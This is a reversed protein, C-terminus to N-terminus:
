TAVVGHARLRALLANLAARAEVDIVAGGTADAVAAGQAGLVKTGAVKYSTAVDPSAPLAITIDAENSVPDDALTIAVNAGEILNLRPRAVETGASNKRVAVSQGEIVTAFSNETAIEVGAEAQRETRILQAVDVGQQEIM